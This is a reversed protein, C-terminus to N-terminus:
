LNQNRHIIFEVTLISSEILLIIGAFLFYAQIFDITKCILIISFVLGVFNTLVRVAALLPQKLVTFVSSLIRVIAFGINYCAWIICLPRSDIKVTVIIIGLVIGIIYIAFSQISKLKFELRLTVFETLGITGVCLIILGLLTRTIPYDLIKYLLITGGVVFSGLIVIAELIIQLVNAKRM